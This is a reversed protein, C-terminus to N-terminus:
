ILVNEKKQTWLHTKPDKLSEEALRKATLLALLTKLQMPSSHTEQTPSHFAGKCRLTQQEKRGKTEPSPSDFGGM